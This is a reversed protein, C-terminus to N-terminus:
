PDVDLGGRAPTELNEPETPNWSQTARAPSRTSAVDNQEHHIEARGLGAGVGHDASAMVMALVAIIGDGDDCEDDVCNRKCGNVM